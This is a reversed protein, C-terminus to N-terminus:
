RRPDNGERALSQGLVCLDEPRLGSPGLRDYIALGAEDRGQRITARALLRLADPDNRDVKLRRRALDDTEEWDRRDYAASARALLDAPRRARSWWAWSGLAPAGVLVIALLLWRFTSGRRRM